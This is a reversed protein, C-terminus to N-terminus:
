AAPMRHGTAAAKWAEGSAPLREASASMRRALLDLNM